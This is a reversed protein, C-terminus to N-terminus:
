FLNRSTSYNETITNFFHHMYNESIYLHKSLYARGEATELMNAAKQLLSVARHPLAMESHIAAVVQEVEDLTFCYGKEVWKTLYEGMNDANMTTTIDYMSSISIGEKELSAVKKPNRSMFRYEYKALGLETLLRGILDYNRSDIIASGTLLEAAAGQTKCGVYKGSPLYGNVQLHLEKAKYFLGMGQAEQPLHIYIGTNEGIKRLAMEREEECNCHSDGFMGLMCESGLRLYPEENGFLPANKFDSLSNVSEWVTDTTKVLLTIENRTYGTPTDGLKCVISFCNGLHKNNHMKYLAKEM